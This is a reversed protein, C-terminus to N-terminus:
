RARELVIVPIRRTTRQSYEAYDPTKAVVAQWLTEREPDDAERARVPITERGVEVTANPNAKLNLWWDPHKPEGLFSAIVVFANDKPFYTLANTRKTGTRRGTTTLLLVPMGLLNGAIRGGSWRYLIPHIKWFLEVLPGRKTAM